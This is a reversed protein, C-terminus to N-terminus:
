YEVKWLFLGKPSITKPSLRRDKKDLIVKIDAETIRNSNLELFTSVIIRVMNQLFRDSSIEMVTEDDRTFFRLSDISCIYNNVEAHTSCFAQFDKKGIFLEAASNLRYLDIKYPYILSYRNRFLEPTRRIFYRYTRRKADFRSNFSDGALESSLALIDNPLRSNLPYIMKEAPISTNATNFNLTQEKAHVGSDTRGSFITSINENLLSGLAKEFESQVTRQDPQTQSGCFDTGDYQIIMKVNM